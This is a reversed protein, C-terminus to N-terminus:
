DGEAQAEFWISKLAAVGGLAVESSEDIDSNVYTLLGDDALIEIAHVAFGDVTRVFVISKDGNRVVASNPVSFVAGEDSALALIRASLFQGARLLSETNDIVARILVTQSVTDVVQGVHTVTAQIEQGRISVAVRMGADVRGVREQPVHVELWLRTVDAVRYVPELTDVHAGLASLQATVIGDFPARLTLMSSLQQAEALREVQRESMGALRLQQRRQDLAVTTARTAATTEQLRRESIIGDEHLGRDRQLQVQALEEVTLADVYERQLTLIAPSQIEAMAQGATVSDGDAVLLRSLVGSVTAGVIAEQAPPIVVEAPGSAIEIQSVRQPYTLEVGLRDFEASSVVLRENGNAFASCCIGVLLSFLFIKKMAM